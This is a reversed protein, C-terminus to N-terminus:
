NLPQRLRTAAAALQGAARSLFFFFFFFFFFFLRRVFRGKPRPSADHRAGQHRSASAYWRMGSRSRTGLSAAGARSAAATSNPPLPASRSVPSSRCSRGLVKDRKTVAAVLKPNGLEQGAGEQGRTCGPYTSLDASTGERGARRLPAAPVSRRRCGARHRRVPRAENDAIFARIEDWINLLMLWQEKYLTVPFRGMGYVSVAGEDSVKMRAGGSAGKKLAANEFRLRELEAKLEEDSM